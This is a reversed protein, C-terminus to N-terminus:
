RSVASVSNGACAPIFRSQEKVRYGGEGTGRAHPSSGASRSAAPPQSRQEGRMRPHVPPLRPTEPHTRSNGACAPIFRDIADDHDHTHATGRAHPSSGHHCETRYEAANQEGRMRPHVPSWRRKWTGQGSNGACAPIFRWKMFQGSPRTVTGRAHPSSGITVCEQRQVLEQEGRM